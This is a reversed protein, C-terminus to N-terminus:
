PLVFPVVLFLPVGPAPIKLRVEIGRLCIGVDPRQLERDESIGIGNLVGEPSFSLNFKLPISRPEARLKVAPAWCKEVFEGRYAELAQSANEAGRAEIEPTPATPPAPTVSPPVVVPSAPTVSSLPVVVPSAAAPVSPVTPVPVSSSSESRSLVVAAAVILGTVVISLPLVLNQSAM